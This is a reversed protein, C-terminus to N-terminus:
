IEVCTKCFDMCQKVTCKLAYFSVENDTWGNRDGYLIARSYCTLECTPIAETASGSTSALALALGAAIAARKLIKTM